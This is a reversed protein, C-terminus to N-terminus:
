GTLVPPSIISCHLLLALLSACHTLTSLKPKIYLGNERRGTEGNIGICTLASVLRVSHAGNIGICTLAPILSFDALTAAIYFTELAWFPRSSSFATRVLASDDEFFGNNHFHAFVRPAFDDVDDDRNESGDGRGYAHSRACSVSWELHRNQCTPIIFLPPISRM